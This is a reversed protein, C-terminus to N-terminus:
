VLARHCIQDSPIYIAFMVGECLLVTNLAVLLLGVTM